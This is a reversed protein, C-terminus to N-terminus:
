SPMLHFPGTRYKLLQIGSAGFGSSPRITGSSISPWNMRSIESLTRRKALMSAPWM